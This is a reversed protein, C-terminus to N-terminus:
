YIIVKGGNPNPSIHNIIVDATGVPSGNIIVFESTATELMGTNLTLLDSYSSMNSTADEYNITFYISLDNDLTESVTFKAGYANTGGTQPDPATISGTLTVEDGSDVPCSAVDLIKYSPSSPPNPVTAQPLGSISTKVGNVDLPEENADDTVYKLRPQILNGTNAM